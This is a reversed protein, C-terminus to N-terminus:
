QRGMIVLPGSDALDVPASLRWRVGAADIEHQDWRAGAWYILSGEPRLLPEAVQWTSTASSFARAVCVDFRAGLTEARQHAVRINRLGLRDVVSALVASRGGRQEVLTVESSTVIALPIGPLGAGSGLDLVETGEPIEPAARMSDLLHREWIRERDASAVYGRPVAEEILLSRFRGLLELQRDTLEIGLRRADTGWAEHKVHFM